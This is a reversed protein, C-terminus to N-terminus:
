FSTGGRLLAGNTDFHFSVRPTRQPEAAGRLLLWVGAAALVGSATVLAAVARESRIASDESARYRDGWTAGPQQLEELEHNASAARMLFLGALAASIGAGTLCGYAWLRKQSSQAPQQVVPRSPLARPSPPVLVRKERSISAVASAPGAVATEARAENAEVCRQMEAIKQPLDPPLPGPALSQFELYHALAGSCAGSLREAQALNYLLEPEASLSYAERFASAAAEYQGAEYLALGGDFLVRARDEVSSASNSPQTGASPAPASPLSPETAAAAAAWALHCAFQSAAVFWLRRRRM